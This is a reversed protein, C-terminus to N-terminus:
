GFGNRISNVPQLQGDYVTAAIEVRGALYAHIDRVLAFELHTYPLMRLPAATKAAYNFSVARFETFGIPIQELEFFPFVTFGFCTIESIAKRSEDIM